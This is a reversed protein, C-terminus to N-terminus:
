PHPFRGSAAQTSPSAYPGRPLDRLRFLAQPYELPYRHM